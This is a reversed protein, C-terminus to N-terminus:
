PELSHNVLPLPHRVLQPLSANESPPATESLPKERTFPNWLIANIEATGGGRESVGHARVAAELRQRVIYSQIHEAAREVLPTPM